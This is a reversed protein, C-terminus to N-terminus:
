SEQCSSFAASTSGGETAVCPNVTSGGCDRSPRSDSDSTWVAKGFSIGGLCAIDSPSGSPEPSSATSSGAHSTQARWIKRSFPAGKGKGGIGRGGRGRDCLWRLRDLHSFASANHSTASEALSAMLPCHPCRVLLLACPAEASAGAERRGRRQEAVCGPTDDRCAMWM